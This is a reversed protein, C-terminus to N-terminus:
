PLNDFFLQDSSKTPFKKELNTSTIIKFRTIPKFSSTTTKINDLSTADVIKNLPSLEEDSDALVGVSADNTKAKNYVCVVSVMDNVVDCVTDVLYKSNQSKYLDTILKKDKFPDYLNYDFELCKTKEKILNFYEIEDEYYNEINLLSGNSDYKIKTPRYGLLLTSVNEFLHETQKKNQGNYSPFASALLLTTQRDIGNSAKMKEFLADIQKFILNTLNIGSKEQQFNAKKRNKCLIRPLCVRDPENRKNLLFLNRTLFSQKFASLQFEGSRKSIQSSKEALNISNNEGFSSSTNAEVFNFNETDDILKNSVFAVLNSSSNSILDSIPKYVSNEIRNSLKNQNANEIKEEKKFTMIHVVAPKIREIEIDEDNILSNTSLKSSAFMKINLENEFEFELEKWNNEEKSDNLIEFQQLLSAILKMVKGVMQTNQQWKSTLVQITLPIRTLINNLQLKLLISQTYPKFRPHDIEKKPGNSNCIKILSRLDKDLNKLANNKNLRNLLKGLKCKSKQIRHSNVGLQDEKQETYEIEEAKIKLNQENLM